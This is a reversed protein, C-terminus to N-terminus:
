EGERDEIPVMCAMEPVDHYRREFREAAELNSFYALVVQANSYDYGGPIHWFSVKAVSTPEQQLTGGAGIIESTNM